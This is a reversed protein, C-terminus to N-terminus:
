TESPQDDLSNLIDDLKKDHNALIENIKKLIKETSPPYPDDIGEERIEDYIKKQIM